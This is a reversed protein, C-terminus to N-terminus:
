TSRPTKTGKRVVRVLAARYGIRGPNCAWVERLEHLERLARARTSFKEFGYSRGDADFRRVGWCRTRAINIAEQIAELEPVALDIERWEDRLLIGRLEDVLKARKM